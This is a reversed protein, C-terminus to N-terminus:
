TGNTSLRPCFPPERYPVVRDVAMTTPVTGPLSHTGNADVWGPAGPRYSYVILCFIEHFAKLRLFPDHRGAKTGNYFAM